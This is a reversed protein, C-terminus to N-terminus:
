GGPTFWSHVTSSREINVPTLRQSPRSFCHDLCRAAEKSSSSFYYDLAFVAASAFSRQTLRGCTITMLGYLAVVTHFSSGAVASNSPCRWFSNTVTAFSLGTRMFPGTVQGCLIIWHCDRTAPTAHQKSFRKVGDGKRTGHCLKRNRNETHLLQLPYSATERDRIRYQRNHTQARLSSAAGFSGDTPWFERHKGHTFVAVAM